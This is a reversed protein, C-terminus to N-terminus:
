TYICPSTHEDHVPTKTHIKLAIELKFFCQFVLSMLTFKLFHLNQILFLHNLTGLLFFQFHCFWMMPHCNCMCEATKYLGPAGWHTGVHSGFHFRLGNLMVCALQLRIQGASQSISHYQCRVCMCVYARVCVVM